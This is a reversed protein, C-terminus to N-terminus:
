PTMISSDATLATLAEEFATNPLVQHVRAPTRSFTGDILKVPVAALITSQLAAYSQAHFLVTLSQLIRCITKM